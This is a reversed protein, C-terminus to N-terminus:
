PKKSLGRGTARRAGSVAWEELAAVLGVITHEAAEVQVIMGYERATRSTVPGISAVAVSELLQAADDGLLAALHHATSSSTLTIVDAQTVLQRARIPDGDMLTEYVIIRDVLAGRSTLGVEVVDRASAGIPLLVRTGALDEGAMADVLAEGVATSPVLDVRVGLDSLARATSPGIAAVHAANLRSPAVNTARLRDSVYRVGKPSTLVVWNYRDLHEIARDLPSVDRPPETRITPLEIPMAGRQILLDTLNSAQDSARTV